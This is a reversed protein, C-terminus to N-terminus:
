FNDKLLNSANARSSPNFVIMESLILHLFSLVNKSRRGPPQLNIELDRSSIIKEIENPNNKILLLSKEDFPLTNELLYFIHIGL